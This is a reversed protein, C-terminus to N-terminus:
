HVKRHHFPPRHRYHLREGGSVDATNTERSTTPAPRPVTKRWTESVDTTGAPQQLIMDPPRSTTPAAIQLAPPATEAAPTLTGPLLHVTGPAPVATEPCPATGRPASLQWEALSNWSADWFSTTQQWHERARAPSCDRHHPWRLRGRRGARGRSPMAARGLLAPATPGSQIDGCTPHRGSGGNETPTVLTSDRVCVSVNANAKHPGTTAESSIFM